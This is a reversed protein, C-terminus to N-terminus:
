ATRAPTLGLAEHLAAVLLDPPDDKTLVLRCGATLASRHRATSPTGTLMLVPLQPWRALILGTGQVGDVDPMDLDILVVDPSTEPIALLGEAVSPCSAVVCFGTSELLARLCTRFFEHDDILLVRPLRAGAAGSPGPGPM